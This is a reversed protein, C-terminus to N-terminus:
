PNGGLEEIQAILEVSITLRHSFKDLFEISGPQSNTGPYIKTIKGHYKRNNKLYICIRVGVYKTIQEDIM